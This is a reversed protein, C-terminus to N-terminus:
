AEYLRMQGNRARTTSSTQATQSMMADNCFFNERFSFRFSNSAVMAECGLAREWDVAGRTRAVVRVPYCGRRVGAGVLVM